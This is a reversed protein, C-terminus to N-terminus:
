VSVLSAPQQGVLGSYFVAKYFRLGVGLGAPLPDRVTTAGGEYVEGHGPPAFGLLGGRIADELGLLSLGTPAVCEIAFAATRVSNGGGTGCLDRSGATGAFDYLQGFWMIAFPKVFGTPDIPVDTSEPVGELFIKNNPVTAVVRNYISMQWDFVGTM